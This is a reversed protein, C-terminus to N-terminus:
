SLFVIILYGIAITAAFVLPPSFIMIMASIKRDQYIPWEFRSKRAEFIIAFILSLLFFPVLILDFLIALGDLSWRPHQECLNGPIAYVTLFISSVASPLEDYCTCPLNAFHKGYFFGVVIHLVPILLASVPVVFLNLVAAKYAFIYITGFFIVAYRLLILLGSMEWLFSRKESFLYMPFVLFLICHVAVLIAFFKLTKM